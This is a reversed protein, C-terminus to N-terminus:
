APRTLVVLDQMGVWRDTSGSWMGPVLDTYELGATGAFRQLLRASYATMQELNGPVVYAFDAGWKPLHHDFDFTPRGFVSPRPLGKRYHDLLFVSLLCRGGPCLVRAAEAIYREVNAPAMHTLVSAAFVLDQSGDDAPFRYESPAMGGQPNYYTNSVDAHVFTFRPHAPTFTRQLFDIKERVIEFGTYHGEVLLYKLAFAIRGLGCGIEMVRSRGNMGGYARVLMSWEEAWRFWDELVTIGEQYMLTPPPVLEPEYAVWQPYPYPPRDPWTTM